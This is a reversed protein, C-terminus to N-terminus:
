TKWLPDGEDQGTDRKERIEMVKKNSAGRQLRTGAGKGDGMSDKEEFM